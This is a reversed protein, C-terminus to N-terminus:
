PEAKARNIWYTDVLSRVPRFQQYCAMTMMLTLTGSRRTLPRCSGRPASALAGAAAIL